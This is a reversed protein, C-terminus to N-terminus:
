CRVQQLPHSAVRKNIGINQINNPNLQIEAASGLRRLRFYAARDCELPRYFPSIGSQRDRDARHRLRSCIRKFVVPVFLSELREHSRVM